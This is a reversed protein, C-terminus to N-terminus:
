KAVISIIMSLIVIVGIAIFLLQQIRMNRVDRKSRTSKKAM